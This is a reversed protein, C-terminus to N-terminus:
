KHSQVSVNNKVSRVGEVSKVLSELKAKEADSAVSGSITVQGNGDATVLAARANSSLATDKQIAKRARDGVSSADDNLSIYSTSGNMMQPRAGQSNDSPSKNFNNNRNYSDNQNGNYSSSNRNYNDYQNNNSYSSSPSRNYSNRNSNNYYPGMAENDYNQESVHGGQYYPISDNMGQQYDRNYQSEWAVLTSASAIMALCTILTKM